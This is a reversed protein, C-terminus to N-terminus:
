TVQTGPESTGWEEGETGVTAVALSEEPQAECVKGLARHSGEAANTSFGGHRLHYHDCRM